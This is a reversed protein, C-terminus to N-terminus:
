QPKGKLKTVVSAMPQLEEERIMGFEATFYYFHKFCTNLHADAGLAKIKDWHSHYLHAYVRFMRSLIKKLVDKFNKPFAGVAPFIKEDDLQQSIWNVLNSVYQPAPLSVPKEGKDQWFYTAKPGASMEPCSEATCHESVIGFCLVMTNYLEITNMALWENLDEGPPCKVADAFTVNTGLSAKLTKALTGGAERQQGKAPKQFKFKATKSKDFFDFLPM